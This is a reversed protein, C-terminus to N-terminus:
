KAVALIEEKIKQKYSELSDRREAWRMKATGPLEAPNSYLIKFLDEDSVSKESGKLKFRKEHTLRGWGTPPFADKESFRTRLPELAPDDPSIVSYVLYRIASIIEMKSKEDLEVIARLAERTERLVYQKLSPSQECAKEFLIRHSIAALRESLDGAVLKNPEFEVIDEMTNIVDSTLDVGIAHATFDHNAFNLLHTVHTELQQLRRDGSKQVLADKLDQAIRLEGYTRGSADKPSFEHGWPRGDRIKERDEYTVFGHISYGKQESQQLAHEAHSRDVMSDIEVKFRELFAEFLALEKQWEPVASKRELM